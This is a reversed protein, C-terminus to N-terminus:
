NKRSKKVVEINVVSSKINTIELSVINNHTDSQEKFAQLVKPSLLSEASEINNEKYSSVIIKFAKEAGLLFSELTFSKDGSIIAEEQSDFETAFKKINKNVLNINEDQTKKSNINTKELFEIYILLWYALLLLM